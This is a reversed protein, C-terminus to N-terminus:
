PGIILLGIGDNLMVVKGGLGIEERWHYIPHTEPPVISFQHQESIRKGTSRRYIRYVSSQLIHHTDAIQRVKMGQNVLQVIAIHDIMIRGM